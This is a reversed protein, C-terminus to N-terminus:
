GLWVNAVSGSWRGRFASFIFSEGMALTEASRLSIFATRSLDLCISIALSCLGTRMQRVGSASWIDPHQEALDGAAGPMSKTM